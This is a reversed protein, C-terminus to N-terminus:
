RNRLYDERDRYQERNDYFDMNEKMQEQDQPVETWGDQRNMAGCRECNFDQKGVLGQEAGCNTCYNLEDM